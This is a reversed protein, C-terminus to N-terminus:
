KYKGQYLKRTEFVSIKLQEAGKEIVGIRKTRKKM